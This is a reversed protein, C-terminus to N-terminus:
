ECLSERRNRSIYRTKHSKYREKTSRSARLALATKGDYTTRGDTQGDTVNLYRPCIPQVLEFTIARIILKPRREESGCCRCDLGLPVGMFNLHFPHPRQERSGQLIESVPCSLVLTVISSRYFTAYASEIPALILSRPHGKLAIVCETEFFTRRESGV